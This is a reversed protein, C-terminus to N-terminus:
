EAERRFRRPTQGTERKFTEGFQTLSTFGCMGAIRTISLSTETLLRKAHEIRKARIYQAPACGLAETFENYFTARSVSQLHDLLDEITIRRAINNDIYEIAKEVVHATQTRNLTSGRAFLTTAGAEVPKRPVRKGELLQHLLEIAAYGQESGGGAVSTIQPHTLLCAHEDLYSAIGVDDPVRLGLRECSRLVATAHVGNWTLVGIPRKLRKLWADLRREARRAADTQKHDSVSDRFFASVEGEATRLLDNLYAPRSEAIPEGRTGVYAFRTYGCERLHALLVRSGEGTIGRVAGVRPDVMGAGINVCRMQPPLQDKIQEYDPKTLNIIAGDWARHSLLDPLERHDMFLVDQLEIAPHQQAYAVIGMVATRAYVAWHTLAIAISRRKAM